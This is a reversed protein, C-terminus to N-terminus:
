LVWARIGWPSFDLRWHQKPVRSPSAGPAARHTRWGSCMLSMCMVGMQCPCPGSPMTLMGWMYAESPLGTKRVRYIWNALLAQPIDQDTAEVKATCIAAGVLIEDAYATDATIQATGSGVDAIDSWDPVATLDWNDAHHWSDTTEGPEWTYTDARVMATSSLLIVVSVAILLGSRLAKRRM